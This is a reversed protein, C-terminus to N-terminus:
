KLPEYTRYVDHSYDHGIKFKLGIRFVDSSPDVEIANGNFSRFSWSDYDTHLYEAFLIAWAMDYEIGGGYTFGGLTATKKSTTGQATVVGAGLGNLKYEAGLMGYGGTAYIMFVPHVMVGLRARATAYYDVGYQDNLSVSAKSRGEDFAADIEGGIVFSGLRLDYGASVGAGLGDPSASERFSAAAPPTQTIAYDVNAGQLFVGFRILGSADWNQAQAPLAVGASVILLFGVLTRAIQRLAM